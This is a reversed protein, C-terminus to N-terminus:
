RSVPRFIKASPDSRPYKTAMPEKEWAPNAALQERIQTGPPPMDENPQTRPDSGNETSGGSYM